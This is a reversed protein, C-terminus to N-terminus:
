AFAPRFVMLVYIALVSLFGPWGLLFWIRFLKHFETPLATKQDRATQALRALRIQIWVVPLWAAAAVVYLVYTGILWPSLLPYGVIVALWLGTVPQVVVAVATFIADAVVVHRATAAIQAVDSQRVAMLMFFAIGMGTGFLIAASLIHVLRLTLYLEM